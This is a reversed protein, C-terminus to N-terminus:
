AEMLRGLKLALGMAGKVKLAGTMFAMTPDKTGDIFGSFTNVSCCLTVDAEADEHSLVPPDQTADVFIKGEEGFDLKVRAKLDKAYGLKEEIKRTIEEFTM